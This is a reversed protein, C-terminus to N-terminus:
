GFFGFFCVGGLIAVVCLVCWIVIRGEKRGEKRRVWWGGDGDEGCMKTGEVMENGM